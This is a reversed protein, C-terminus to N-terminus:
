QNGGNCLGASQLADMAIKEGKFGATLDNNIMTNAEDRNADHPPPPGEAAASSWVSMLVVGSVLGSVPDVSVFRVSLTSNEQTAGDSRSSM